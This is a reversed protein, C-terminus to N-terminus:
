TELERLRAGVVARVVELPLPNRHPFKVTGKGAAYPAISARFDDDGDPIPYLSVHHTWAAMHLLPTGDLTFTPIDYSIKEGVDPAVERVTERIAHLRERGVEHCAALYEDVTTHKAM